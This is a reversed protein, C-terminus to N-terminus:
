YCIVCLLRSLPTDLSWSPHTSLRPSVRSWFLLSCPTNCSTHFTLCSQPQRRCFALNSPPPTVQVSLCISLDPLGEIALLSRPLKPDSPPQSLHGSLCM